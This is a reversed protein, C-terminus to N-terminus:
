NMIQIFDALLRATIGWIVGHEIQYALVRHKRGGWSRHYKEPLDLEEAPLHVEKEGSEPNQTYSHFELRTHYEEPPMEKLRSLPLTFVDAVESRNLILQDPSEIDLIGVYPEILVEAPTILTDMQGLLRIHDVPLGLEECTERLATERFSKDLLPDYAGGPFCIENEQRIGRARIQFLLHWEDRERILPLLVASQFYEELGMIGPVAPLGKKIESLLDYALNKGSIMM